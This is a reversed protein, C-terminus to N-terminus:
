RDVKKFAKPLYEIIDSAILSIQTKERAALDGALGHIYVAACSAAYAELGQALFAALIGALCDGSGATAMGPNGSTNTYCKKHPSAVVTRHGKLILTNNYRFAFDNAVKNRSAQVEDVCLGCLRAMEGPHPTLVAKNKLSKLIALHGSLAGLADADLVLPLDIEVILDRILQQTEPDDSLGPGMLLCGAKKSFDKIERLAGKSLSKNKTEPLALTMAETLKSAAIPHLSRPIGLTVLGAGARMASQACLCAAGVFRESGALIFVHGFDGKHSDAKRNFLRAPLRM